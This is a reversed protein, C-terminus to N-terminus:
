SDKYERDATKQCQQIVEKMFIESAPIVIQECTPCMDFTFTQTYGDGPRRIAFPTPIETVKQCFDCVYQRM